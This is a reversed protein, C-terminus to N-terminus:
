AARNDIANRYLQNFKRMLTTTLQHQASVDSIKGMQDELVVNNGVPKKESATRDKIHTYKDTGANIGSLHKASSTRMELRSSENSVMDDFNMKKLDKAQFNPTDINAINQALLGQRETLYSLQASLKQMLLPETLSM